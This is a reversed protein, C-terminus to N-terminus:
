DDPNIQFVTLKIQRLIDLEFEPFGLRCETTIDYRAIGRLTILIEFLGGCDHVLAKRIQNSRSGTILLHELRELPDATQNM